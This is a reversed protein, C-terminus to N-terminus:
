AACRPRTGASMGSAFAQGRQRAQAVAAPGPDADLDDFIAWFAAKVEAQAHKPVKALLNRARHVLWRQRLSRPSAVEV